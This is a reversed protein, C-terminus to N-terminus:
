MDGPSSDNILIVILEKQWNITLTYPGKQECFSVFDIM